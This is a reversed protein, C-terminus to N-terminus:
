RMRIRRWTSAIEGVNLPWWPQNAIVRLEDILPMGVTTMDTMLALVARVLAAKAQASNPSADFVGSALNVMSARFALLYTYSRVIRDSVDVPLLGLKDIQKEFIPGYEPPVVYVKPVVFNQGSEFARLMTELNKVLEGRETIHALSAMEGALVAATSRRDRHRKYSELPIGALVATAAGILATLLLWGPGVGDGAM